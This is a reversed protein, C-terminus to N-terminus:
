SKMQAITTDRIGRVGAETHVGVKKLQDAYTGTGLDEGMDNYKDTLSALAALLTGGANV